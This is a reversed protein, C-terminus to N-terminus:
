SLAEHLILLPLCPIRIGVTSAWREADGAPRYRRSAASNYPGTCATTRRRRPFRYKKNWLGAIETRPIM